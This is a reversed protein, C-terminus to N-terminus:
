LGAGFLRLTDRANVDAGGALLVSVALSASAGYIFVVQHLPTGENSWQLVHPDAGSTLLVQM